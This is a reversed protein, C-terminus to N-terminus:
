QWRCTGETKYIFLIFGMSATLVLKSMKLLLIHFYLILLLKFTYYLFKCVKIGSTMLELVEITENGM